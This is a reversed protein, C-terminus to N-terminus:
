VSAPNLCRDPHEGDAIPFGRSWAVDRDVVCLQATRACSLVPQQWSSRLRFFRDRVVIEWVVEKMRISVYMNEISMRVKDETIRRLPVHHADMKLSWLRLKLSANEKRSRVKKIRKKRVREVKKNFFCLFTASGYVRFTPYFFSPPSPIIESRKKHTYVLEYPHM